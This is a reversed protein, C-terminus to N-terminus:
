LYKNMLERKRQEIVFKAIDEQSPVPVHARVNADTVASSAGLLTSALVDDEDDDAADQQELVSGALGMSQIEIQRQRKAEDYEEIARQILVREREAEKPILAEDDEDNYGYYDPTINRYIDARTRKKRRSEIDAEHQQFLERVGPLEKAAGFYRYGVAGPLEKGEAEIGRGRLNKRSYDGGGLERIRREWYHKERLLKNIADNLDRIAHEGLAANQIAAIKKSAERIIEQRKKQADALTIGKKGAFPRRSDSFAAEQKMTTWKNFLGMAKEENRAM